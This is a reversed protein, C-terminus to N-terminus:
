ESQFEFVIVHTSPVAQGHLKAPEFIWQRAASLAAGALVQKIKKGHSIIRAGTVRGKADIEVEVEVRPNVQMLIPAIERIDPLVQRLPRPPVLTAPLPPPQVTAQSKAPTVVVPIAATSQPAKSPVTNSPKSNEDAPPSVAPPFDASALPLPSATQSAASDLPVSPAANLVPASGSISAGTSATQSPTSNSGAQVLIPPTGPTIDPAGAVSTPRAADPQAPLAVVSIDTANQVRNAASDAREPPANAQPSSEANPKRTPKASHEVPAPAASAPGAASAQLPRSLDIPERRSGDLVRVTAAITSGQQSHVELRFTVDNSGPRYLVLGNEMQGADLRVDRHQAGDDIHLVGDAATRVVANRRNWSLLLRDGQGEARLQLGADPLLGQLFRPTGSGSDLGHLVLFAFTIGATLACLIVSFIWPMWRRRPEPRFLAPVAPPQGANIRMMATPESVARQEPVMARQRRIIQARAPSEVTDTATKNEEAGTQRSRLISLPIRTRLKSKRDGRALVRDLSDPGELRRLEEGARHMAVEVLGIVPADLPLRVAGWRHAEASMPADEAKTYLELLAVGPAERKLILAADNPRAFHANHFAVDSAHLGGADRMSYWGILELASVEPDTQAAASAQKFFRQRREGETAGPEDSQSASFSKFAQVIALSEGAIGFLLGAMEQGELGSKIRACLRNVFQPSLRVATSTRRPPNSAPAGQDAISMSM